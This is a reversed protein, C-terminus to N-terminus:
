QVSEKKIDKVWTKYDIINWSNLPKAIQRIECDRILDTLYSIAEDSSPSFLACKRGALNIHAMVKELYEFSAPKDDACGIFLLQPDLIETGEFDGAEVIRIDDGFFESVIALAVKRTADDEDIIILIKKESM